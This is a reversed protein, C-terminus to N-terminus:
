ASNIGSAYGSGVYGSPERNITGGDFNFWGATDTEFGNFYPGPPAAASAVLGASALMSITALLTVLSRLVSARKRTTTLSRAGGVLTRTRRGSLGARARGSLRCCLAHRIPRRETLM